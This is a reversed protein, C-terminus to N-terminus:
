HSFASTPEAHLAEVAQLVEELLTEELDSSRLLEWFSVWHSSVAGLRSSLVRLVQEALLRRDDATWSQGAPNFVLQASIMTLATDPVGVQLAAQLAAVGKAAAVTDASRAYATWRSLLTPISSQGGFADWGRRSLVVDPFAQVWADQVREDTPYLGDIRLASIMPLSTHDSLRVVEDLLRHRMAVPLRPNRLLLSAVSDFSPSTGTLILEATSTLVQPDSAFADRRSPHRPKQPGTPAVPAGASPLAQLPASTAAGRILRVLNADANASAALDAWDDLLARVSAAQQRGSGLSAALESLRRTATDVTSQRTGVSVSQPSRLADYDSGAAPDLVRTAAQVLRDVDVDYGAIYELAFANVPNQELVQHAWDRGFARLADRMSYPDDHGPLKALVALAQEPLLRHLATRGLKVVVPLAKTANWAAQALPAPIDHVRELILPWEGTKVAAAVATLHRDELEKRSVFAALAEPDLTDAVAAVQDYVHAPMHSDFLNRRTRDRASDPMSGSMAWLAEAAEDPVVVAFRTVLEVLHDPTTPSLPM